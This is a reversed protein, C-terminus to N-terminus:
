RVAETGVGDASCKTAMTGVTESRNEVTVVFM